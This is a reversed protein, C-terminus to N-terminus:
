NIMLVLVLQPEIHYHGGKKEEEEEEAGIFGNLHVYNLELLCLVRVLVRMLEKLISRLYVRQFHGHSFGSFM